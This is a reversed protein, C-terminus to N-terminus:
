KQVLVGKEIALFEFEATFGQGQPSCAYVGCQFVKDEADEMLRTIRLQNWTQEKLEKLTFEKDHKVELFEVIYDKSERRIRFYLDWPGKKYNQTSWDSYGHNTVVAGLKCMGNPEYEISTKLWCDKSFRVMLGAQDYQHVPYSRVRTTIIVDENMESYLFHGNDVAFGYHTKQWYDTMKEPQIILGTDKKQIDWKEPQCYWNLNPHLTENQFKEYLLLSCM